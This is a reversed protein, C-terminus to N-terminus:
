VDKYENISVLVKWINEQKKNQFNTHREEKERKQKPTLKRLSEYRYVDGIVRMMYHHSSKSGRM